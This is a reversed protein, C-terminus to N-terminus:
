LPFSACQELEVEVFYKMWGQVRLIYVIHDKMLQITTSLHVWQFTRTSLGANASGFSWQLDPCELWDPRELRKLIRPYLFPRRLRLLHHYLFFVVVSLLVNSVCGWGEPRLSSTLSSNFSHNMNKILSILKHMPGLNNARMNIIGVKITYEKENHKETFTGLNVKTLHPM